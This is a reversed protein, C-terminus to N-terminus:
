GHFSEMDVKARGHNKVISRAHGSAQSYLVGFRLDAPRLVKGTLVILMLKGGFTEVVDMPACDKIDLFPQKSDKKIVPM